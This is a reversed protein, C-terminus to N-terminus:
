PKDGKCGDSPLRRFRVAVGLRRLKREAKAATEFDQERLARELVAFWATPCTAAERQTPEDPSHPIKRM